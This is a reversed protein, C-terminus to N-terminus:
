DIVVHEIRYKEIQYGKRSIWDFIWGGAYMGAAVGLPGAMQDFSDSNIVGNIAIIGGFLIGGAKFSHGLFKWGGRGFRISTLDAFRYKTGDLTITTDSFHTVSGKTWQETKLDKVSADQYLVLVKMKTSGKKKFYLYDQAFGVSCMFSLIFLVTLKM